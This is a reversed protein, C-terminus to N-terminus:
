KRKSLFVQFGVGINLAHGSFKQDYETYGTVDPVPPSYDYVFVNRQHFKTYSYGYGAYIDLGASPTFMKTIGLNLGANYFFKGSVKGEYSYKEGSTYRVGDTSGSGSGANM